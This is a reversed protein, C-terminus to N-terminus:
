ESLAASKSMVNYILSSNNGCVLVVDNELSAAEVFGIADTGSFLLNQAANIEFNGGAFEDGNHTGAARTFAGQQVDQTQKVFGVPSLDDEVTQIQMLKGGGTLVFDAIPFETKNELKVM